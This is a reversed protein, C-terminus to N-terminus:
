WGCGISLRKSLSQEIEKVLKESSITFAGGTNVSTGYIGNPIANPITVNKPMEIYACMEMRKHDCKDRKPCKQCKEAMQSITGM